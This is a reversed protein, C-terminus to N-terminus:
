TAITLVLLGLMTVAVGALSLAAWVLWFGAVRKLADM